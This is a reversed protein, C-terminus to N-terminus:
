KVEGRLAAALGCDCPNGHIREACETLDRGYRRLATRLRVIEARAQRTEVKADRYVECMRGLTRQAADNWTAVSEPLGHQRLRENEALTQRTDAALIEVLCRYEWGIEGWEYAEVGREIAADREALTEELQRQLDAIEGGLAAKLVGWQECSLRAVKEAMVQRRQRGLTWPRGLRAFAM